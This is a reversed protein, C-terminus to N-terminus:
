QQSSSYMYEVIAQLDETTCNFCLGKAPMANVGNIVNAMMGEMGKEMRSNWEDPNDLKPAGGAGSNHCAFCSQMYTAEANFDATLQALQLPEGTNVDASISGAFALSVILMSATVLPSRVVKILSKVVLEKRKLL